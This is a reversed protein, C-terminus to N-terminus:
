VRHKDQCIHGYDPSCNCLDYTSTFKKEDDVMDLEMYVEAMQFFLDEVLSTLLEVRQGLERFARENIM